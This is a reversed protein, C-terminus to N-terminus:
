VAALIDEWVVANKRVHRKRSAPPPSSAARYIIKTYHGECTEVPTGDPASEKIYSTTAPTFKAANNIMEAYEDGASMQDIVDCQVGALLAYSVVANKRVHRKRSVPPPTSAARYIIKGYNDGAHIQVFVSESIYSSLIALRFPVVDLSDRGQRRFSHEPTLPSSNHYALM